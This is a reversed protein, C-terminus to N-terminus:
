IGIRTSYNQVWVMREPTLEELSQGEYVWKSGAIPSNGKVTSVVTHLLPLHTSILKAENDYDVLVKVVFNLKIVERCPSIENASMVEDGVYVVWVAPRPLDVNTTDVDQGGVALGVRGGFSSITKIRTVIDGAITSISATM